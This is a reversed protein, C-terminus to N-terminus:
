SRIYVTAPGRGERRLLGAREMEELDRRATRDGVDAAFDNRYERPSYPRGPKAHELFSRQRENLASSIEEMSVPARFILRVGDVSEWQPEPLKAQRCAELIKLTGRGIREMFGRKYLFNAIDPNNPISPHTEHLKRQNWGEPLSGSNWIELSKPYIKLTVGGSHASYDRHAMANVLAERIAADPYVSQSVRTLDLNFDARQQVNRAIFRRAEEILLAIPGDFDQHDNFLDNTESVFAYARLRIQPHRISPTEGLCVDGANTYSGDPRRFGLTRMLEPADGPSWEYDGAGHMWTFTQNLEAQSLDQDELGMAARREWRETVQSQHQLMGQLDAATAKVTDEGRRLFITGDCVFPLDKGGPVDIVWVPRGGLTDAALSFLPQPSILSRLQADLWSAEQGEGPAIVTGGGSNLFAAVHSAALAATANAALVVMRQKNKPNKVMQDLSSM